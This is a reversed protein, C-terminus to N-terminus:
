EDGVESPLALCHPRRCICMWFFAARGTSYTALHGDRRREGDHRLLCRLAFAAPKSELNDAAVVSWVEAVVLETIPDLDEVDEVAVIRQEDRVDVLETVEIDEGADAFFVEAMNRRAVGVGLDGEREGDAGGIEVEEQVIAILRKHRPVSVAVEHLRYAAVLRKSAYSPIVTNRAIVRRKVHFAAISGDHRHQARVRPAILLEDAVAEEQCPM